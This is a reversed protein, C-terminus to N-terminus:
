PRPRHFSEPAMVIAIKKGCTIVQVSSYYKMGVNLLMIDGLLLKQWLHYKYEVLKIEGSMM